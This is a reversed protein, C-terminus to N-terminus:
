ILREEPPVKLVSDMELRAGAVEQQSPSYTGESQRRKRAALIGSLLGVLLLLLCACAAPVAVELLPFPPPPPLGKAVECFQGSFRTSCTCEYVGGAARCTGGNLCPNDDCSTQCREGAPREQCSCNAGRPGGDCPTGNLCTLNLSCEEPLVPLRCRPGAFGPPCRCDFRGDPRPHCRGRVCPASRCPDTRAECRPGEWGPGCACAFADFLDRCAGGHLCPSPVCVPAGACGLRAAPQGPRAPFHERSGPGAGPRPRALPLLLGGLAVRGLCGTFNEALLIHAAGPGRLFALDGAAGRLAVPTAAGDLWLLWRSAAAEPREMALRVRHWAGDAVRPGPAPLVAGPPGRGSRVGAALSGNRVALWVAALAGAAARLLGAEPDRTRFALSVGSLAPGSSANHGGFAVPPGERFTAEAVCVFGDPVEECTAPPLCPQGPCWLQQSCTPGTFNTPCTCHFDNWTVLCTGGNLCPDPSCVDESVCGMTLNRSQRSSLESPQSSNGLPLPSFPLHLGNLRLDQLCGRFPGGWPQADAPLLRGGVHVQQGLGQLQDPGFSLTVLHRLGDDLRGPLGLAPSGLVEAWIQGDRLFVTLGAASDNALQLLLGAPERTRLLFSVTLNPGPRQQLLFSASSLTGGLGFTAAPAEYACTPGSYPRPCDCHFHTWLDVCAGRHACPPPQCQEHRECGLLVNEGLDEPLLLHGDVHVDQLCGAFAGGGLQVSCSGAPTPATSATPAPAVPSSAVCSRAPCGEHWLRLELVGLHLTAEARHWHGDNLALDPLRLVLVTSGSSWLTAQLTAGALVLELSDQADTRTALVGAPLTTRFRLALALPGGAPVSARVPSGAVVSFTTNQGCFSGHTGPPCRCVYGHVGSEFTPVCTAALPCSHGQCGTLQVSCDHGGWAEPCRCTYGAVTDDCTGGHLCPESLCEDVDEQCTPGTYGNPCHCQFGNPLDQCRGGSLCPGSACEDFDVSCDAGEFGPPCRCLFGAAHRFSFTGPFTAQDGGYLTPDSRQLCQGGHQCPGAACEDEDVECQEGSYGPWCLCRFSGLGELCSANHACPASACELVEQECRAGEYGTDACDCRFGNVLDHCVGGHACPQSQCEDLDLQCSAGGYGPTCVCRYSGVGDLCSGGHLCPASACEDVEAECTVGAYGLPCHCEYRDALNRCTAGHRCPRSACEDIDLECHPGQFGPVCYCRFDSPGPGQPVCLAGHRCPQSACGHPEVPGCTYGGSETAQCKTGPACPDSACASSTEVPM